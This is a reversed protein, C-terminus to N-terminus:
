DHSRVIVTGVMGLEDHLACIFPYTGPNPFTFTVSRRVVFGPPLIADANVYDILERSILFGSNLSQGPSSVVNGGYPRFGPGFPDPLEPGFTVTHPANIDENIFTVSQGAGIEVTAPLFRLVAAAGLGQVSTQGVGAAVGDRRDAVKGASKALRTASAIDAQEFRQAVKQNNADTSPLKAASPLVTLTGYMDRHFACLFHYTTGQSGATGSAVHLNYTLSEGPGCPGFCGFQGSNLPTGGDHNSAQLTTGGFLTPDGYAFTPVGPFRVINFTVTHQGVGTFVIDDNEHVVTRAPYFTTHEQSIATFSDLNGAQVNWTSSGAAAATTPVLGSLTGAVLAMGLGLSRLRAAMLTPGRAM